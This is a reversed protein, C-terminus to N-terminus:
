EEKRQTELNQNQNQNQNQNAGRSHQPSSNKAARQSEDSLSASTQGPARTHTTPSQVKKYDFFCYIEPSIMNFSVSFKGLVSKGMFAFRGCFSGFHSSRHSFIPM